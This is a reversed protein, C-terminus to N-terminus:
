VYHRAQKRFMDAYVADLGMLEDHSGSEVIEGSQLVYIRDASKAISLRHSIIIASRGRMLEWLRDLLESEANPDVASTPEDLILLQANSMFARALALKQWEGTSLEQGEGFSRGLVTDYGNRLRNAVLDAGSRQAADAILRADPLIGTNGFWINEGVTMNYRVYDQFMVGLGRRLSELSFERLDIGDISISGGDPDYLRCLLKVLTSKGSGNEGVLAVIEGPKTSLNIERLSQTSSGPYTFSVRRFEIGSVLPNPVNKPNDPEVVVPQLELFERLSSLFLNDEYLASLATLMQQLSSLGRQFVQFLMVMEGLSIRGYATSYAVYALTGYLATAAGADAVADAWTQKTVLNLKAQRLQDCLKQFIGSLFPALQYLRIEKATSDGTLLSSLYRTRRNTETVKRHWSFLESADRMRVLLGPLCAGVLVLPVLWHFRFMLSAIAILSLGNQVVQVVGNYVKSPRFAAEGQARHLTDHYLPNEYCALDIRASQAHIVNQVHDTVTQSQATSVLSGISRCLSILLAVVVSLALLYAIRHVKEQIGIGSSSVVDVVLKVLYISILPLIAQMVMLCLNALALAPSSQWVLRLSPVINLSNLVRTKTFSDGFM